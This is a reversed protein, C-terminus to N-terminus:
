TTVQVEDLAIAEPDALVTTIGNVASLVMDPEFRFAFSTAVAMAFSGLVTAVVQVLAQLMEFAVTPLEVSADLVTLLEVPKPRDSARPWNELAAILTTCPVTEVLL